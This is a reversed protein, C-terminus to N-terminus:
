GVKPNKKPPNCGGLRRSRSFHDARARAAQVPDVSDTPPSAWALVSLPLVGGRQFETPMGLPIEVHDGATSGHESATEQGCRDMLVGDRNPGNM